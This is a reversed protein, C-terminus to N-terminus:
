VKIGMSLCEKMMEAMVDAIIAYVLSARKQSGEIGYKFYLHQMHQATTFVTINLKEAIDEDTICGQKIVEVVEKERPTLEEIFETM